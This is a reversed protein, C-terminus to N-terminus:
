VPRIIFVLTITFLVFMVIVWGLIYLIYLIYLWYGTQRPGPRQCLSTFLVIYLGRHGGSVGFCRWYSSSPTTLRTDYEKLINRIYNGASVLYTLVCNRFMQTYFVLQLYNCKGIWIQLKHSWSIGLSYM